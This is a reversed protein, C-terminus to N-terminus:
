HSFGGFEELEAAGDYEQVVSPVYDAPAANVPPPAAPAAQPAAQAPEPRAKPTVPWRLVQGREADAHREGARRAAIAFARTGYMSGVCGVFAIWDLAKQSTRVDYHRMVNQASKMFARAETEEIMLEPTQTRIALAVHVGVFM